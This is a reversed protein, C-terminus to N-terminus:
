GLSRCPVLTFRFRGNAAAARFALGCFRVGGAAARVAMLISHYKQTMPLPQLAVIQVGWLGVAAALGILVGNLLGLRAMTQPRIESIEHDLSALRPRDNMSNTTAM